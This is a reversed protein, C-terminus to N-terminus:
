KWEKKEKNITCKQNTIWKWSIEKSNCTIRKTDFSPCNRHSPFSFIKFCSIGSLCCNITHILSQSIFHEDNMKLREFQNNVKDIFFFFFFNMVSCRQSLNSCSMICLYHQGSENMLIYDTGLSLSSSWHRDKLLMLNM